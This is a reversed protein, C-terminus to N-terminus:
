GLSVPAGQHKPWVEDQQIYDHGDFVSAFDRCLNPGVRFQLVCGDNKEGRENRRAFGLSAYVDVPIWKKGLWDINLLQDAGDVLM